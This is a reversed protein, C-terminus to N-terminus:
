EAATETIRTYEAADLLDGPLAGDLRLEILWGDGYPEQNVLEPEDSLSENVGTVTGSVPTYIEAVAKVSELTGVSSGATVADGVSPLDAFVIDGLQLQAHDTVGVRVVGDAGERLWEHESTYRLDEPILSM